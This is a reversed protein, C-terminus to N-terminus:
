PINNSQGDTCSLSKERDRAQYILVATTTVQLTSFRAMSNIFWKGSKARKNLIFSGLLSGPVYEIKISRDVWARRPYFNITEICPRCVEPHHVLIPVQHEHKLYSEV